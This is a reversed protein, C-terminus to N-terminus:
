SAAVGGSTDSTPAEPTTAATKIAIFAAEFDAHYTIEGLVAHALGNAERALQEVQKLPAEVVTERLVGRQKTIRQRMIGDAPDLWAVPSHIIDNRRVRIRDYEALFAAIKAQLAEDLNQKALASILDKRAVPNMSYYVIDANQKTTGLLRETLAAMNYELNSWAMSLRGFATAYQDMREWIEDPTMSM